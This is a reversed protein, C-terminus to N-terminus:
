ELKIVSVLFRHLDHGLTGSGTSLQLFSCVIIYGLLLLVTSYVM